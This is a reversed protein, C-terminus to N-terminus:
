NRRKINSKLNELKEKLLKNVAAPNAKGNTARMVRGVFFGIVKDKGNMYEEVEKSSASILEDIVISLENRDSVQQLGKEEIIVDPTKRESIMALFVEKGIKNNIEGSLILNILAALDEAPVPFSAIEIKNENLYGLVDGMIWNSVIKKDSTKGAALEYYDALDRDSTLLETDYEPLKYVEIFKKRKQDPLEPIESKIKELYPKEINVSMLDPEPFYRYDHAEEKSRLSVSKNNDADWLLTEQIVKGGNNLIEQQRNAEYIIAREVNRFSNLNKIETKTGLEAANLLKLSVNADCRLSGEEMNGDCIRLYKLLQKIKVLFLYAEEPSHLDPETVIEMLPTGSRNLDIQTSDGYDHILKGADEELHIRKIRIKKNEKGAPSIEIYGNECFPKEYQSIQYGKPLDPYFYNKRAFRSQSNVECNVSMGMKLIFDVAKQNLVPLVGPHGLCIPCVNSNPESGFETSCGCFIKTNTLLQAHVELGAVLQYKEEEFIM